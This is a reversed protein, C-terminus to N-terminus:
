RVASVGWSGQLTSPARGGDRLDIALSEGAGLGMGGPLPWYMPVNCIFWGDLRVSANSFNRLVIGAEEGLLSVEVIAVGEPEFAPAPEAAGADDGSDKGEPEAEEEPEAQEEPEAEEEEAEPTAQENAQEQAGAEEEPQAVVSEDDEEDDGGCGDLAIGVAGM